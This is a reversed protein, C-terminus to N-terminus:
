SKMARKLLAYYGGCGKFLWHAVRTVTTTSTKGLAAIDLYSHKQKLLLSAIHVRNALEELENPTLLDRLFSAVEEENKASALAKVLLKEESTKPKYSETKTFEIEKSM